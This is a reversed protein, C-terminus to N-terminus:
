HAGTVEDRTPPAAGARSVTIAACTLAFDVLDTLHEQTMETLSHRGLLDREALGALLGAMMSDGAGVTDVVAVTRAPRAVYEESTLAFAGHAGRTIVVVAPGKAIWDRAIQVLDRPEPYLWRLDDESAKVVDALAVQREVRVVEEDRSRGGPRVNPDYSITADSSRALSEFLEPDRQMALSGLHLVDTVGVPPATDWHSDATGDLYFEYAADREDDLTAMALSTPQDTRRVLRDSVGNDTLHKLIREGLPDTSIRTLFATDLGLRAAGVAVNLPSGGVHAAYQQGDTTVLDILAEGAVVLRATSM